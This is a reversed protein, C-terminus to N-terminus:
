IARKYIRQDYPRALEMYLSSIPISGYGLRVSYRYDWFGFMADDFESSPEPPSHLAGTVIIITWIVHEYM